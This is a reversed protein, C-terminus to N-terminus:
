RTIVRMAVILVAVVVAAHFQAAEVVEVEHEAYRAHFHPPAHDRFYMRIAIGFFRSIVPVPLRGCAIARSACGTM